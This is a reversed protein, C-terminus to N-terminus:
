GEEEKDPHNVIAADLRRAVWAIGNKVAFDRADVLEDLYVDSDELNDLDIVKVNDSMDEAVGGLIVVYEAM